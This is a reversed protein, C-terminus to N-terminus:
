FGGAKIYNGIKKQDNMLRCVQDAIIDGEEKPLTPILIVQMKHQKDEIYLGVVVNSRNKRPRIGYAVYDKM